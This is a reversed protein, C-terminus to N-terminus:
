AALKVKFGADQLFGPDQALEKGPHILDFRHFLQLLVQVIGLGVFLAKRSHCPRPLALTRMIGVDIAQGCYTTVRQRSICM